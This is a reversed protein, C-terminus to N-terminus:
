VGASQDNSERKESEFKVIDCITNKIEITDLRGQLTKITEKLNSIEYISQSRLDNYNQLLVYYDIGFEKLEDTSRKVRARKLNEIEAQLEAVQASYREAETEHAGCCMTM